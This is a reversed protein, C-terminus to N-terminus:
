QGCSLKVQPAFKVRWFACKTSFLVQKRLHKKRASATPNSGVLGHLSGSKSDPGNHGSRYVEMNIVSFGKGEVRNDIIDFYVIIHM